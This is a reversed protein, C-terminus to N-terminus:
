SFKSNLEEVVDRVIKSLEERYEGQKAIVSFTPHGYQNFGHKEAIEKAIPVLNVDDYWRAFISVSTQKGGTRFDDVVGYTVLFRVDQPLLQTLAYAASKPLWQMPVEANNLNVVAAVGHVETNQVLKKAYDFVPYPLAGSTILKYIDFLVDVASSPTYRIFSHRFARYAYDAATGLMMIKKVIDADPNRRYLPALGVDYDSYNGALLLLAEGNLGEGVDFAEHVEDISARELRAVIEESSPINLELISEGSYYHLLAYTMQIGTVIIPVVGAEKLAQIEEERTPHHDLHVVTQVARALQKYAQITSKPDLRNIPLDTVVVEELKLPNGFLLRVNTPFTGILASQSVDVNYVSTHLISLGHAYGEDSIIGRTM